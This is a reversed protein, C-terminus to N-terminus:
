RIRKPLHIRLGSEGDACELEEGRAVMDGGFNILYNQLGAKTLRESARDAAYEKGIGGFDIRLGSHALRVMGDM